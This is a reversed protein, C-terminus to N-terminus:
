HISGRPPKSISDDSRRDRANAISQHIIELIPKDPESAAILGAKVHVVAL